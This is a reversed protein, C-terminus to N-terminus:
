NQDQSAGCKEVLELIQEATQKCQGFCANDMQGLRSNLSLSGVPLDTLFWPHCLIQPVTIRQKPDLQLLEKLLSRCDSSVKMPEKYDAELIRGFMKQLAKAHILAADAPRTFPFNGVVLVYLMVGCSWIDAAKGDYQETSLVEPAMYEPTGCATKCVSNAVEDKSYGFDCIKIVPQECRDQILINDLKIDRNAIGRRHCYDLGIMFQQFFWRAESEPCGRIDLQANRDIYESLDGGTAYEMVIGIHHPTLFVDKLQIINPHLACGLQNLLERSIVQRSPGGEREMFKIAVLANDAKTVALQVFGTSGSNIDRVKRYDPNGELPDLRSDWVSRSSRPGFRPLHSPIDISDQTSETSRRTGSRSPYSCSVDESQLLHLTFM